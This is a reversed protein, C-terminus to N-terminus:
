EIFPPSRYRCNRQYDSIHTCKYFCSYFVVKLQGEFWLTVKVCMKPRKQNVITRIRHLPGLVQQYWVLFLQTLKYM